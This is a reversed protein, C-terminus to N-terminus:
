PPGQRLVSAQRVSGAARKARGSQARVAGHRGDGGCQQPPRGEGRLLVRQAAAPLDRPQGARPARTSPAVAPRPLPEPRARELGALLAGTAARWLKRLVPAGGSRRVAPVPVRISALYRSVRE